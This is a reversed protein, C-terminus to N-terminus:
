EADDAETSGKFFAEIKDIAEQCLSSFDGRYFFEKCDIYEGLMSAKFETETVPAVVCPYVLNRFPSSIEDFFVLVYCLIEVKGGSFVGKPELFVIDVTKQLVVEPLRLVGYIYFTNEVGIRFVGVGVYNKWVFTCPYLESGDTFGARTQIFGLLTPYDGEFIDFYFYKDVGPEGKELASVFESLEEIGWCMEKNFGFSDTSSLALDETVLVNFKTGEKLLEKIKKM